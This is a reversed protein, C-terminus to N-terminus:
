LLCLECFVGCLTCKVSCSHWCILLFFTEVKLLSHSNYLTHVLSWSPGSQEGSFRTNDYSCFFVSEFYISNEIKTLLSEMESNVSFFAKFLSKLIYQWILWKQWSVLVTRFSKIKELYFRTTLRGSNEPSINNSFTFKHLGSVYIM